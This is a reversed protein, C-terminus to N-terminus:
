FNGIRRIFEKETGYRWLELEYEVVGHVRFEAQEGGRVCRPWM